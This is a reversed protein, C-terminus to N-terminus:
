GELDVPGSLRFSLSKWKRYSFSGSIQTPQLPYYHTQWAPSAHEEKELHSM